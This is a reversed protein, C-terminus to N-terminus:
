RRRGARTGLAEHLGDASRSRTGTDRAAHRPYFREPIPTEVPRGIREARAYGFLAETRPNARSIRGERDVVLTTDPAFEFITQFLEM